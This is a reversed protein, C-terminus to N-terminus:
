ADDTVAGIASEAGVVGRLDLHEDIVVARDEGRAAFRWLGTELWAVQYGVLEEIFADLELAGSRRPSPSELSTGTASVTARATCASRSPKESTHSGSLPWPRPRNVTADLRAACVVRIFIPIPTTFGNQRWGDSIAM